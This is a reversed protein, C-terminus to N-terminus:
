ATLAQLQANTARVAYYTIRRITGNLPTSGASGLGGIILQTADLNVAGTVDEGTSGSQLRGSLGQWAVAAKIFTNNSIVAGTGAGSFTGGVVARLRDVTLQPSRLSTTTTGGSLEWVGQTKVAAAYVASESYVTGQSNSFWSSFNTGTM